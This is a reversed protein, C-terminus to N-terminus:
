SGGTVELVYGETSGRLENTRDAVQLLTAEYSAAAALDAVRFTFLPGSSVDGVFVATVEGDDGQLTELFRSYLSPAASTVETMGPGDVRLLLAGDDANPTTLTVTLTGGVPGTPGEDGDGCSAAVALIACLVSGVLWRPKLM